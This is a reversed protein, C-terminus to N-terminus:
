TVTGSGCAPCTFLSEGERPRDALIERAQELDSEAVQIRIGGLANAFLPNALTMGGDPLHVEIGSAELLMRIADAEAIWHVRAVTEM